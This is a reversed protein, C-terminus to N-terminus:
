LVCYLKSMLLTYKGGEIGLSAGYVFLLVIVVFSYHFSFSFFLFLIYGSMM